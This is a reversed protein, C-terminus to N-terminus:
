NWVQPSLFMASVIRWRGNSRGFHFRLRFACSESMLFYDRQYVDRSLTKSEGISISDWVPCQDSILDSYEKAQAGLLHSETIMLMAAFVSDKQMLDLFEIALADIATLDDSTLEGAPTIETLDNPVALAPESFLVASSILAAAYINAMIAKAM